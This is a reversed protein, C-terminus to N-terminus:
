PTAIVTATYTLKAPRYLCFYERITGPTTHPPQTEPNTSCPTVRSSRWAFTNDLGSVALVPAWTPVALAIVDGPRVLLTTYLPFQATRGFYPALLFEDSVANLFYRVQGPRLARQPRLVAVRARATGAAPNAANAQRNFFAIQSTTPRGLRVTFAVLRGTVTSTFINRRTRATFQFGTTRTVSLCPSSPCSPAISEASAGLEIVRAGAPASAALATAGALALALPFRRMVHM